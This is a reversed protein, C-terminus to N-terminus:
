PRAPRTAPARRAPSWQTQPRAQPEGDVELDVRENFFCLHGAIKDVGPLPERYTWVLADESAGDTRLSRYSAVGKYPCRTTLDSDFLVDARVDSPPIYYRPPLGTEFLVKARETEAILQGEVLVRVSRSTDLVDVRHYPDRAHVYIPEDEELWQDLANWYFAHFGSIPPAGALPELYSWVANEELRDGVRLSWYAAQGKFPCHTTHSTPELLEMRVDAAPFYYVPLHGTEHMLKVARSDVVTEGAFVGRVRRPSDEFYLAHGRVEVDANFVGGPRRGFPASGMTLSM